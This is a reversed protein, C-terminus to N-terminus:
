RQITGEESLPEPTVEAQRRLLLKLVEFRTTLLAAFLFHGPVGLSKRFSSTGFVEFSAACLLGLFTHIPVVRIRFFSDFNPSSRM